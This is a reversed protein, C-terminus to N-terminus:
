QCTRPLPQKCITGRVNTLNDLQFFSVNNENLYKGKLSFFRQTLLGEFSVSIFTISVHTARESVNM